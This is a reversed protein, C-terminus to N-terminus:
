GGRRYGVKARAREGSNVGERTREGGDSRGDEREGPAQGGAVTGREYSGFNMDRALAM